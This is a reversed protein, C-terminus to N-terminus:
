RRESGVVKVASRQTIRSGDNRELIAEIEYEGPPLESFVRTLAGVSAAGDLSISSSRFFRPADARITLRRNAEHRVIRASVRITAPSTAAQPRVTLELPERPTAPVLLLAALVFSLM